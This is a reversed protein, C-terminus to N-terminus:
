VGLQATLGGDIRIDAGTVFSGEDSLLWAVLSAVEEPTGIRGLPHGRGFMAIVEEPDGEDCHPCMSVFGFGPEASITKLRYLSGDVLEVSVEAEELGHEVKFHDVRRLIRQVLEDLPVAM